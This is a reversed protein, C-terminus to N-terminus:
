SSKGFLRRLFKIFRIGKGQGYIESYEKAARDLPYNQGHKDKLHDWHKVIWIYLDAMTRDPFRTLISEEEIINSIPKFLNEYWSFAAEILTIENERNMNIYYKHGLIHGMLEEYRGPSTFELNRFEVLRDLGTSKLVRKKEFEIVKKRLAELGMDKTIEIESTLEVVEADIALVGQTRAVSVRHNGDRVFYVEGLKFLKIAPLIVDKYYAKDISMWRNRLHEKKPLFAKSFDQYRDESGVIDSVNVVMMGRYTEKKPKILNKIDYFSLLQRKEPKLLALIDSFAAKSKAKDFDQSTQAVLNGDAM